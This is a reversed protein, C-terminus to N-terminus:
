SFCTQRFNMSLTKVGTTCPNAVQLINTGSIAHLGKAVLANERRIRFPSGSWRSSSNCKVVYGTLSIQWTSWFSWFSLPFGSAYNQLPQRGRSLAVPGESPRLSCENRSVCCHERPWPYSTRTLWLSPPCGQFCTQGQTLPMYSVPVNWIFIPYSPRNITNAIVKFYTWLGASWIKLQATKEIFIILDWPNNLSGPFFYTGFM